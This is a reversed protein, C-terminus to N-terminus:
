LTYHFFKAGNWSIINTDTDNIREVQCDGKMRFENFKAENPVDLDALWTGRIVFSPSSGKITGDQNYVTAAITMDYNSNLDYQIIKLKGYRGENTVFLLIANPKLVFGDKNTAVILETKLSADLAVIDARGIEEFGLLKDGKSDEKSCSFLFSLTILCFLFHYNKPNTFNNTKLNKNTNKM